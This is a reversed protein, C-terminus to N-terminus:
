GALTFRMVPIMAWKLVRLIGLLMLLAVVLMLWGSYMHFREATVQSAKGYVWVTPLIRILNCLIAAFPSAILILFRVSNRLPLSFSFAYSVLILGFVMRLGNCKEIINVPKGNFLLQNGSRVVQAGMGLVQFVIQEIHATWNQLPLAIKMRIEGPVPVLFVLVAVVPIFRFIAHKGLVSVICGLVVLVSGGHWLSLIGHYFGYSRIIWGTAVIMPGLLTFSPKCYRFRVRRAWLMWLAVLPVLLIHDAEEDKMAIHFIDTWASWTVAVGFMAMVAAAAVHYRTWRDSRFLRHTM